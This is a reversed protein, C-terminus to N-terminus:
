YFTKYLFINKLIKKESKFFNPEIIKNKMKKQIKKIIQILNKWKNKESEKRKLNQKKFFRDQFVNLVQRYEERNFIVQKIIEWPDKSFKQKTIYNLMKNSIRIMTIEWPDLFNKKKSKFLNLILKKISKQHFQDELM